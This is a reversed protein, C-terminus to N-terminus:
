RDALKGEGDPSRYDDLLAKLEGPSTVPKRCTGHECVYATAKGDVAQKDALLPIRQKEPADEWAFAFVANPFFGTRILKLMDDASAHDRPAVIAVEKKGALYLHLAQMMFPSNLGYEMLEDHFAVFIDEARKELDLDLRYASLKLFALAANSNGSPEVGDYGSIQRVILDEGDSATEYYAHPAKFKDEVTHM